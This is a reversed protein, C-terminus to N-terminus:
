TNSRLLGGLWTEWEAARAAWTHTRRFWASQQARGRRYADPEARAAQVAEIALKAL